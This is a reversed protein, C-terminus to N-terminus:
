LVEEDESKERFLSIVAETMDYYMVKNEIDFFGVVKYRKKAQYDPILKTLIEHLNKNTTNLTIAQEVKPKAFPTAKLENSKCPRLAFVKHEADICYQVNQPYNLDQLVRKSFTVGNVNIYIDPTTNINIDIVELNLNSFKIAM